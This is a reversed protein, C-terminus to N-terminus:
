SVCLCFTWSPVGREKRGMVTTTWCYTTERLLFNLVFGFRKNKAIVTSFLGSSWETAVSSGKFSGHFINSLLGHGEVGVEGRVVM